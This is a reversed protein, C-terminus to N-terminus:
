LKSLCCREPGNVGLVLQAGLRLGTVLWMCHVQHYFDDDDFIEPDYDHLHPDQRGREHVEETAEGTGNGNEDEARESSTGNGSAAVVAESNTGLVRYM